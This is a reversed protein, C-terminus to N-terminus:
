RQKVRGALMGCECELLANQSKDFGVVRGSRLFMCASNTTNLPLAHPIWPINQSQEPHGKM